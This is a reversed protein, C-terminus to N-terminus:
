ICGFVHEPPVEAVKAPKPRRLHLSEKAKTTVLLWMGLVNGVAAAYWNLREDSPYEEKRSKCTM